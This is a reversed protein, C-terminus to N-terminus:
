DKRRLLTRVKDRIQKPTRQLPHNELFARCESIAPESGTSLHQDFYESIAESEEHTFPTRKGSGRGSGGERRVEEMVRYGEVADRRGKNMKYYLQQTQVSHSMATAVKEREIESKESIATAVAHRTKTATQPIDVRLTKALRSIHRSLHDIQKGEQNPFLLGTEIGELTPRIKQVYLDLHRSLHSDATLKARGTTGTKHRSVLFTKYTERGHTSTTATNYEMLAANAVAGPRQANCHLLAGALWIMIRRSTAAPVKEGKTVKEITSHLLTAMQQNRAFSTINHLQPSPRESMDELTVRKDARARKGLTAVWNSVVKLCKEAMMSDEALTLGMSVYHIGQRLRCLTAHQSTASKGSSELESLYNDITNTNYLFQPNIQPGCSLLYRAVTLVILRAEKPSRGRGHRSILHGKLRLLFPHTLDVADRTERRGEAEGKTEGEAEEEGGLYGRETEEEGGGEFEEREGRDGGETEERM